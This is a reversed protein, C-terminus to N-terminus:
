SFTLKKPSSINELGINQEFFKDSLCFNSLTALVAFSNSLLLRDLVIPVPSTSLADLLWLASAQSPRVILKKEHARLLFLVSINLLGFAGVCLNGWNLLKAGTRWTKIDCVSWNTRNMTARATKGVCIFPEDLHMTLTLLLFSSSKSMLCCIRYINWNMWSFARHKLYSNLYNQKGQQSNAKEIFLFLANTIRLM